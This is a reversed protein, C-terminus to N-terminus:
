PTKEKLYPHPHATIIYGGIDLRRIHTRMRAVLVVSGLVRSQVPGLDLHYAGQHAIMTLISSASIREPGTIPAQPARSLSPIRM